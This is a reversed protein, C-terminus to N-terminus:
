DPRTMRQARLDVMAKATLMPLQVHSLADRERAEFLHLFIFFPSSRGPSVLFLKLSLIIRACEARILRVPNFSIIRHSQESSGSNFSLVHHSDFEFALNATDTAM